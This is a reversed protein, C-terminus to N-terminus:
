GAARALSEELVAAPLPLQIALTTGGSAAGGIILTGQLEKVREEIGRLGLGDRRRAPDLGVGDDSISVDL